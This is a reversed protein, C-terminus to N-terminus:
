QYELITNKYCVTEPFSLYNMFSGCSILRGDELLQFIESMESVSKEITFGEYIRLLDNGEEKSCNCYHCFSGSDGQLYDLMKGDFM